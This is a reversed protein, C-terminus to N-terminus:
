KGAAAMEQLLTLLRYFRFKIEDISRNNLLEAVHKFTNESNGETQFTQLIIRDEERTWNNQDFSSNSTGSGSHTSSLLRNNDDKTEECDSLNDQSSDDYFEVFHLFM